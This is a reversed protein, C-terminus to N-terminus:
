EPLEEVKLELADAMAKRNEKGPNREGDLYEYICNKGVGSETVWKGRTWEKQKLIPMVVTRRRAAIASQTRAADESAPRKASVRVAGPDATRHEREVIRHAAILLKTCRRIEDTSVHAERWGFRQSAFLALKLEGINERIRSVSLGIGLLLDM